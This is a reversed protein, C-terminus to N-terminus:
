EITIDQGTKRYSFGSSRSLIDMIMEIPIDAFQATIKKKKLKEDLIHIRVGYWNELDACITELPALDYNLEGKLWSFAVATDFTTVQWRATHRDYAIQQGPLLEALPELNYHIDIKGEKLLIKGSASDAADVQFSTGIDKIVLGAAETYFPIAENHRVNFYGKGRLLVRREKGGFNDPIRLSSGPFLIAVSSDSLVLQRVHGTGASYYAYQPERSHKQKLITKYTLTSLIILGAIAAAYYVWHPLKYISKIPRPSSGIWGAKERAEIFKEWAEFREWAELKEWGERQLSGPIVGELQMEKWAQDMCEQVFPGDEDMALYLEILEKEHPLSKGEFYKKLVDKSPRTLKNM